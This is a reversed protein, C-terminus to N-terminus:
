KSKARVQAVVDLIADIVLQPEEAQINHGAKKAIVQRSNSSLTLLQAQLRQHVASIQPEVDDPAYVILPIEGLGNTARVLAANAKFDVWERSKSNDPGERWGQLLESEGPSPPPLVKAVEPYLDPHSSDVLIM